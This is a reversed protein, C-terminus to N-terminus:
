FQGVVNVGHMPGTSVGLKVNQFGRQTVTEKPASSAGSGTILLVTAVGIGVIGVGLGVNTLMAYREGDDQLGQSSRPCVGDPRCVAALDDEASKRQLAFYGAAGLGIVGIGGIIFPLANPGKSDVVVAPPPEIVPPDDDRPGADQPKGFGEPAVLEVNMTEGEQVNVTQEFQRGGSLKAVIRHPGPDVSVEKGLQSEGVDVGDVEITASEAGAGRTIVLKPIRAELTERANSIEDLEKANQQQAEYEALRYDGLAETLRGLNEKCRGIHFRVQPTLRVRAVEDFKALAGAWDGAAELSLGQKYLTRARALEQATQAVLPPAAAVGALSLAMSLAAARYLRGRATHSRYALTGDRRMKAGSM